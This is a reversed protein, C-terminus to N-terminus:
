MNQKSYIIARTIQVLGNGHQFGSALRTNSIKHGSRMTAARMKIQLLDPTMKLLQFGIRIPKPKPQTKLHMVALEHLHAQIRDRAICRLTCVLEQEFERGSTKREIQFPGDETQAAPPKFHYDRMWLSIRGHLLVDGNRAPKHIHAAPQLQGGVAKGFSSEASASAAGQAKQFFTQYRKHGAIRM